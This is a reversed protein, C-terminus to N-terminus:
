GVVVVVGLVSRGVHGVLVGIKCLVDEARDIKDGSVNVVLVEEEEEVGGGGRWRWMRAVEAEEVVGGEWGSAQKM